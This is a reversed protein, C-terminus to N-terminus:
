RGKHNRRAPGHFPNIAGRVASSVGEAAETTRNAWKLAKGEKSTDMDAEVQASRASHSTLAASQRAQETQARVFDARQNETLTEATKKITDQSTNGHQALKLAEDMALNHQKFVETASQQKALYTDEAAKTTQAKQLDENAKMVDLEQSQRRAALASTVAPTIVDSQSGLSSGGSAKAGSGGTASLIPNLGAARMDAVQWQHANMMNERQFQRDLAAQKANAKNSSMGGLLSAGAVIAGGIMAAM